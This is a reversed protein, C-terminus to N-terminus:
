DGHDPQRRHQLHRLKLHQQRPRKIKPQVDAPALLLDRQDPQPERLCQDAHDLRVRERGFRDGDLAADAGHLDGLGLRQGQMRCREVPHGIRHNMQGGPRHPDDAAQGRDFGIRTGRLVVNQQIGRQLGCGAQGLQKLETPVAGRGGTGSLLLRRGSPQHVRGGFQAVRGLCHRAKQLQGPDRSRGPACALTVSNFVVVAM